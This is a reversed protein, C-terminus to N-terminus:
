AAPVIVDEVELNDDDIGLSAEVDFETPVVAPNTVDEVRIPVLWDFTFESGFKREVPATTFGGARPQGAGFGAVEGTRLGIAVVNHLAIAAIDQVLEDNPASAVYAWCHVEFPMNLTFGPRGQGSGDVGAGSPQGPKRPGIEYAGPRGALPPCIVVRNARGSGQNTQKTLERRGYVVETGEYGARGRVYARLDSVWDELSKDAM